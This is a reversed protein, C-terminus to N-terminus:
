LITLCRSKGRKPQEVRCAYPQVASVFCGGRARGTDMTRGLCWHRCDRAECSDKSGSLGLRVRSKPRQLTLLSKDNQLVANYWEDKRLHHAVAAPLGAVHQPHVAKFEALVTSTRFTGLLEGAAHLARGRAFAFDRLASMAEPLPRNPFSAVQALRAHAAVRAPASGAPSPRSNKPIAPSSDSSRSSVLTKPLSTAAEVADDHAKIKEQMRTILTKVREM